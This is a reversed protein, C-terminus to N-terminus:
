HLVLLIYSRTIPKREVGEPVMAFEYVACLSSAYIGAGVLWTRLAPMRYMEALIWLERGNATVCAKGAKGMYVFELFGKFSAVSIGPAVQERLIYSISTSTRYV